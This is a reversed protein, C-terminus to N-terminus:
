VTLADGEPTETAPDVREEADARLRERLSEILGDAQRRYTGGCWDRSMLVWGYCRRLLERDVTRESM